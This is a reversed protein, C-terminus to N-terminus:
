RERGAPRGVRVGSCTALEPERAQEALQPNTRSTRSTRRPFKVESILVGLVILGAGVVALAPLQDGSLRGVIGGWVPEGAYIVTARM